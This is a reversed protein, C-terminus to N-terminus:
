EPSKTTTTSPKAASKKKTTKKVPANDDVVIKKPPTAAAQSKAQAAQARLQTVQTDMQTALTEVRDALTRSLTDLNQADTGLLRFDDKAGFAGAYESLTAFEDYLAKVNRYLKFNVAISDPTQRAENLLVPLANNINRQISQARSEAQRKIGGDTKWKDIRVRAVDQNANQAAQELQSLLIPSQAMAVGGLPRPTNASPSAVPQQATALAACLLVTLLASIFRM